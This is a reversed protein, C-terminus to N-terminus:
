NVNVADLVFKLDTHVNLFKNNICNATRAVVFLIKGIM